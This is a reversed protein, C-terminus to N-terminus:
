IKAVRGAVTARCQAGLHGHWAIGKSGSYLGRQQVNSHTNSLGNRFSILRVRYQRAAKGTGIIMKCRLAVDDSLRAARGAHDWIASSEFDFVLVCLQCGGGFIKRGQLKIAIAPTKQCILFRFCGGIGKLGHDSHRHHAAVFATALVFVVLQHHFRLGDRRSGVGWEAMCSHWVQILQPGDRQGLRPLLGSDFWKLQLLAFHDIHSIKPLGIEEPWVLPSLFPAMRILHSPLCVALSHRQSSFCNMHLSVRVADCDCNVFSLIVRRQQGQEHQNRM